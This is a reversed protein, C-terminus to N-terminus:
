EQAAAPARRVRERRWMVVWFAVLGLMTFVAGTRLLRMVAAGYRGTAPDYQYCYLAVADVPTGIRGSSAEVLAFRLDKPAYEIGYLYRALRGDPTLVTVGSPHAYQRTQADWVYRFGVAQTLRKIAPADGTLFHWGAEAGPRKYRQLYARKKAAALAPTEKPEFSVTVVEYEQGADFSLVSMASVLGNLTLTCLMPCEYYVLALVVPRKGFYDGLRVDRGSEDRLAIDLPVQEGLRQDYGVERLAAPVGSAQPTSVPQLWRQASAAPALGAALLLAV